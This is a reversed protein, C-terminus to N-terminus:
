SSSVGPSLDLFSTNTEWTTNGPLWYFKGSTDDWAILYNTRTDAGTKNYDSSFRFLGYGDTDGVTTGALGTTTIESKNGSMTIQGVSDVSINSAVALEDDKIDRPDAKSNLGNHFSGVKLAQKPM